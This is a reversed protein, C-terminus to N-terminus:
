PYTPPFLSHNRHIHLVPSVPLCSYIRFSLFIAPFLILPMVISNPPSVV